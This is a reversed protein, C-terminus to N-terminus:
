PEGERGGHEFGDGAFALGADVQGSEWCRWGSVSLDSVAISIPVSLDGVAIALQALGGLFFQGVELGLFSAEQLLDFGCIAAFVSFLGCQFLSELEYILLDDLDAVAELLWPSFLCCLRPSRAWGRIEAGIQKLLSLMRRRAERSRRSISQGM